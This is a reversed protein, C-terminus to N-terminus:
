LSREAFYWIFLVWDSMLIAKPSYLNLYSGVSRSSVCPSNSYFLRFSLLKLVLGYEETTWCWGRQRRRDNVMTGGEKGQSVWLLRVYHHQTQESIASANTLLILLPHQQLFCGGAQDPNVATKLKNTQTPPHNKVWSSHGHHLQVEIQEAKVLWQKDSQNDHAWASSEWSDPKAFM